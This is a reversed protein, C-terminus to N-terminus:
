EITIRLRKQDRIARAVMELFDAAADGDALDVDITGTMPQLPRTPESFSDELPPEHRQLRDHTCGPLPSGNPQNCSMCKEFQCMPCKHSPCTISTVGLIYPVRGGIDPAGM